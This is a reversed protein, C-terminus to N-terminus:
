ELACWRKPGGGMPLDDVVRRPDEGVLLHELQRVDPGGTGAALAVTIKNDYDTPQSRVVKAGPTLDNVEGTLQNFGDVHSVGWQWLEVTGAPEAGSTPVTQSGPRACAGLAAAGGGPAASRLIARRSLATVREGMSGAETDTPVQSAVSSASQGAGAGTLIM